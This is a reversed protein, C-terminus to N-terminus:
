LYRPEPCLESSGVGGSYVPLIANGARDCNQRETFAYELRRWKTSAGSNDQIGVRTLVRSIESGTMIEDGFLHSLQTIQANTFSIVDAM